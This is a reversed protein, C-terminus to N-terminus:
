FALGSSIIDAYRWSPTHVGCVTGKDFIAKLVYERSLMCESASLKLFREPLRWWPDFKHGHLITRVDWLWGNRNELMHPLLIWEYLYIFCITM